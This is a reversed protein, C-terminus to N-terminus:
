HLRRPRPDRIKLIMRRWPDLAVLTGFLYPFIPSPLINQLANGLADPISWHSTNINLVNELSANIARHVQFWCRLGPIWHCIKLPTSCPTPPASPKAGGRGGRGDSKIAIATTRPGDARYTSSAGWKGGWKLLHAQHQWGSIVHMGQPRVNISVRQRKKNCNVNQLDKTSLTENKVSKILVVQACNISPGMHCLSWCVCM